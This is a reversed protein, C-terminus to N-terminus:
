YGSECDDWGTVTSTACNLNKEECNYSDSCNFAPNRPCVVLDYCHQEDQLACVRGPSADCWNNECWTYDDRSECRPPNSGVVQYCSWEPCDPEPVHCILGSGGIGCAGCIIAAAAQDSVFISARTMATGVLAATLGVSIMIWSKM